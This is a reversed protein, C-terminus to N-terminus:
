EAGGGGRWVNDDPTREFSPWADILTFPADPDVTTPVPGIRRREGAGDEFGQTTGEVATRAGATEETDGNGGAFRVSWRWEGAPAVGVAPALAAPAVDAPSATLGHERRERPARLLRDSDHGLTPLLTRPASGCASRTCGRPKGRPRGARM